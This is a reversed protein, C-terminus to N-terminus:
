KNTLHFPRKHFIFSAAIRLILDKIFRAEPSNYVFIFSINKHKEVIATYNFNHCM